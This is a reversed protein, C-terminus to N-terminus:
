IRETMKEILGLTAKKYRGHAEPDSEKIDTLASLLNQFGKVLSDFYVSYKLVATNNNQKAKERLEDLERQVEDPVKEIVEVATTEIPKEKLQRELEEIRKNSNALDNDTKELKGQLQEVLDSNGSAQAEALQTKLDELEKRLQESKEYHKKNVGELRNYSESLTKSHDKERQLEQETAKLKKLAENKEKVTQQLERTTMEDVPNSQIFEERDERPLDLLAYVKSASLGALTPVNSFENAVQMFRAAQRYSFDVKEELWKGWEGHPLKEKVAILRKGIEIIHQATQQKLILIETTLTDIDSSILVNQEM